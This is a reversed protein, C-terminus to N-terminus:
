RGRNVARPPDEALRALEFRREVDVPIRLKEEVLHHAAAEGPAARLDRAKAVEVHITRALRVLAAHSRDGEMKEVLVQGLSANAEELAAVAIARALLNAIEDRHLVRHAHVQVEEVMGDRTHEVDAGAAGLAEVVNRAGRDVGNAAPAALLREREVLDLARARDFVNRKGGRQDAPVLAMGLGIDRRQARCAVIRREEIDLLADPAIDGLALM